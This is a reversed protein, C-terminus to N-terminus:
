RANRIIEDLEADSLQDIRVNANLKAKAQSGGTAATMPKSRSVREIDKLVQEPKSKLEQMQQELSKAYSYVTALLKEAHARKALQVLTVGSTQSFPDRAFQQIIQPDVGDRQMAAAMANIDFEEEPIYNAVTRIATERSTLTGEEADLQQLHQENTRIQLKKDIALEPNEVFDENLGKALRENAERLAKRLEGIENSRRQWALSQKDLAAKLRENKALLQKHELEADKQKPPQPNQDKSAEDQKEVPAPAQTTEELTEEQFTEAKGYNSIFADLDEDSAEHLPVMQSEVINDTM